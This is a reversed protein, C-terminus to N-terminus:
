PAVRALLERVAVDLQVDQGTLTEGLPKEVRVDVPRPNLEMNQGRLDEIKIFPVRVVTGDLLPQNSTYIIWGSTPTGVVKGAGASRYGETFLEADSLSSENTVLVTPLGLARQGLAQRSPVPSFDRWTMTIFNQRTVVDLVRGNVYGGNNNRIDVVVGQKGQNEADLDLYLQALSADGMDAVHVYGLKGGSIRNVYARREDVWQRYALGSAVANSVPRVVVDRTRGSADAVQLVTRRGIKGELLSDLNVRPTVAEGDVAQLREGVKISGELAAPGLTIVERVVLGRGAEYAERDFRLGLDGVRPAPFAGVGTAPRGIGTHSANLEGVMLSLVRRMEDDTRAGAIQPATRARVADWDRGHFAPDYFRRNLLGWAQDFVVQKDEEFDAELEATVALPKPAGGEAPVSAVSGGERFFVTKSDATFAYDAKPRPSATLPKATPPEKALEDLSYAYLNERGGVVASFVLTKGDPSITPDGTVNLGVPVVTARRRIGDFVVRVPEGRKTVPKDALTEENAQKSASSASAPRAPTRETQPDGPQTTPGFLERFADERFKPVNPQLDVRILKGDESRQASAFLVFKGNPDWAVRSVNGDALFTIQRAEGGAAPVLHVGTFSKADVVGFAVWKGDPSWSPASGAGSALQGRYLLRESAPAKGAPLTLVRLEFPERVFVISKGDPSYVPAAVIGAGSTLDTEKQTAFDYEVLRTDFGRESVYLLKTSDPSWLLQGEAAPTRSIRQAAGGDAASAAFVEGRAVVAVKKGDPSLALNTFNTETLPRPGSSAPAGRLTVPVPAAQRTRPDYRWIEFNREFVIQDGAGISPWVLRGDTFNTLKTPAGGGAPLSWLNETGGEDNMFYLTSGDASWMPWLKKSGAPLLRRYPVADAVPKLWLETEDIHSRGNRWWQNAGIGKAALAITQGDPSPAAHFENLFRERSVEMPTGGDASVRLIDSRGADTANSTFYLWRGDRSWGDLREDSDGWTIRKVAGTAIELVYVNAFGGRNSVFALRRGDPSWLPRQENAADTVLLSAVGGAAPVTWVDGGSVFAIERGDPSLSPEALSPRGQVQASAAGVLASCAALALAFRRTM